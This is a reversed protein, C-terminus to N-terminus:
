KEFVGRELGKYLRSLKVHVAMSQQAVLQHNTSVIEAERLLERVSEIVEQSTSPLDM